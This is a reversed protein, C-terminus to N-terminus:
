RSRELSDIKEQMAKIQEKMECVSELDKKLQKEHEIRTKEKNEEETREQRMTQMDNLAKQSPTILAYAKVNNENNSIPIEEWVGEEDEYTSLDNKRKDM